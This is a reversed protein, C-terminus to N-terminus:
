RLPLPPPDQKTGKGKGKAKSSGSGVVAVLVNVAERVTRSQSSLDISASATEDATGTTTQTFTSIQSMAGQIEQIGTAQENSAGTIADVISVAHLSDDAIRTLLEEARQVVTAGHTSKDASQDILAATDRSATAARLALSRVEDAVVAFGRGHEGARAAEVAANLALLNTQSAIEENTKVIGVMEDAFARIEEMASVSEAMAVSGQEVLGKTERMVASAESSQTANGAAQGALEDLTAATQELRAAQDSAGQALDQSAASIQGSMSAVSDSGLQLQGTVSLIPKFVWRTLVWGILAIEILLIAGFVILINRGLTSAMADTERTSVTISALGLVANEDAEEHCEMCSEENLLPVVYSALHDEPSVCRYSEGSAIVAHEIEGDPEAGERVGFEITTAPARVARVEALEENDRLNEMLIELGEMEGLESFAQVSDAITTALLETMRASDRNSMSHVRNTVLAAAGGLMLVLSGSVMLLMKQRLDMLM